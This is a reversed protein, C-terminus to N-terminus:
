FFFFKNRSIYLRFFCDPCLMNPFKNQLEGEGSASASPAAAVPEPAFLVRPELETRSQKPDPTVKEVTDTTVVDGPVDNKKLTRKAARAPTAVPAQGM